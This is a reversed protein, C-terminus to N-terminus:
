ILNINRHGLMWVLLIINLYYAVSPNSNYAVSPNSYYAVSPNSVNMVALLRKILLTLVPRHDPNKFLYTLEDIGQFFLKAEGGLVNRLINLAKFPALFIRRIKSPTMDPFETNTTKDRVKIGSSIILQIWFYLYSIDLSYFWIPRKIIIIM